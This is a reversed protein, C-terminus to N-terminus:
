AEALEEDTDRSVRRILRRIELFGYAVLKASGPQMDEMEELTLLRKSPKSIKTTM